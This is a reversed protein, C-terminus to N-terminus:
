IFIKMSNQYKCDWQFAISLILLVTNNIQLLYLLTRLCLIISNFHFVFLQILLLPEQSLLFIYSCNYIQTNLLVLFLKNQAFFNTKFNFYLGILLLFNLFASNRAVFSIHIKKFAVLFYKFFSLTKFFDKLSFQFVVNIKNLVSFRLFNFYLLQYIL